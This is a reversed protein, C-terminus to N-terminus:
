RGHVCRLFPTGVPSPLCEEGSACDSSTCCVNACTGLDPDCYRSACDADGSCTSGVAKGSANAGFCWKLQDNGDHGYACVNGDLGLATCDSAGCCPPTCRTSASFPQVCNDNMCSDNNNLCAEGLDRFSGVPPAACVWAVHSSATAIRCTSGSACQNPSCCTDLCEGATCVGSRCETANACTQGGGRGGSPPPSATTKKADVCYNGGTAAPFCVFGATCDASSCCPKTCVAKANSSVIATTLITSTGCLLGAACDTDVVCSGGIPSPGPPPADVGTEVRDGGADNVAVVDDGAEPVSSSPAVCVLAVADCVLGSPCSSPDGGTCHFSPLDGPVILSCGALGALLLALSWLVRRQRFRSM